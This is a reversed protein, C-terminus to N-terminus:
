NTETEGIENTNIEDTGWKRTISPGYKKRFIMETMLHRPKRISVSSDLSCM